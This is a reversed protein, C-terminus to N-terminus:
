NANELKSIRDKLESVDVELKELKEIPTKGLPDDRLFTREHELKSIKKKLESVDVELKEIRDGLTEGHLVICLITRSSKDYGLASLISEFGEIEKEMLEVRGTLTSNSM